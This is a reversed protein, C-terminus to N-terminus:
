RCRQPISHVHVAFAGRLYQVSGPASCDWAKAAAERTRSATSLLEQHGLQVFAPRLFPRQSFSPCAVSGDPQESPKGAQIPVLLGEESSLSSNSVNFAILWM